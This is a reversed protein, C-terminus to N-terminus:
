RQEGAAPAEVPPGEAKKYWLPAFAAFVLILIFLALAIYGLRRKM